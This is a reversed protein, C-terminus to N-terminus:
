SRLFHSEAFSAIAKTELKYVTTFKYPQSRYQVHYVAADDMMSDMIDDDNTM